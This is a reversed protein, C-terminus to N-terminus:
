VKKLKKEDEKGVIGFNIHARPLDVSLLKVRLKAGLIYINKRGVLRIKREEYYYKDSPLIDIDIFGEVTNNLEVFIGSEVVGSIVADFEQGIKDKMFEAKKLDDVAREVEDAKRETISAQESVDHVYEELSAVKDQTLKGNITMKIIRHITLDALRRIPSTFHCYNRCALGFHGLNKEFYVAKQMCRLMIKSVMTEYLQNKSELLFKQFDKPRSSTTLKKGDLGLAQTFEVFRKVGEESPSEHVRYVFPINLKDFHKAITENAILMFQEILRDSLDRPKRIIDKTKYNEDVVVQCEAIDFDLQGMDDRRKILIKTLEAMKDLMPVIIAYEKCLDDDKNLIKTVKQYTMRFASNIIGEHIEYDVVEGNKNIKMELSLTLRDKNPQLSCMENSLCEPLMPIVYDPFYVSTGRKFAERGIASTPSVYHSVDAIHVFLCYLEGDMKLSIADDFDRADDGDITFCISKRYDKRGIIDKPKVEKPVKKSEEIVDEPFEESYGFNRVISLTSVKYDSADGLIEVIKGEAIDKRGPYRTIEVVVKQGNQASLTHDQQIFVDKAFRADDPVVSYYVGNNHFTGVISSYGRKLIKIIEGSRNLSQNKKHRGKQSKKDIIKALVIDGHVAGNLNREAVYLDECDTKDIPIVFAFGRSNGAVEGKIIGVNKVLALKNRATEVVDGNKILESIIKEAKIRSEISFAGIGKFVQEKTAFKLRKLVDIVEM